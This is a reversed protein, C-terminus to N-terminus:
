YNTEGVGVKRYDGELGLWKLTACGAATVFLVISFTEVVGFYAKGAANLEGVVDEENVFNALVVTSMVFVSLAGAAGLYCATQTALTNVDAFEVMKLLTVVALVIPFAPTIAGVQKCSREFSDSSTSMDCDFKWQMILEPPPENGTDDKNFDDQHAGAAPPPTIPAEGGVDTNKFASQADAYDFAVDFNINAGIGKKFADMDVDGSPQGLSTALSNISESSLDTFVTDNERPYCVFGLLVALAVIQLLMLGM